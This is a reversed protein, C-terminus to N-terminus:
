HATIGNSVRTTALYGSRTATDRVRITHGTDAATLTYRRGTAGKIPSGDRLWQYSVYSPTPSWAGPKATLTCGCTTTGSITPKPATGFVRPIAKGASTRSKNPYGSRKATAVVKLTHGRDTRTVTYRKGTAGKIPSGDRLWQYSVYSPTPSWSGPNATLVSGVTVKGAIKPVPATTFTLPYKGFNQTAWACDSGSDYAIGIGIQTYSGSINAEHGASKLWASMITAANQAAGGYGCAYGVNEAAASYGTPMESAFSPNHALVRTSRMHGSWGKSVTVIGDRLTLPKLGEATRHDNTKQLVLQVPDTAADATGGSVTLAATLCAIVVLAVRRALAPPATLASQRM